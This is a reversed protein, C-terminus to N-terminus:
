PTMLNKMGNAFWLFEFQGKYNLPGLIMNSKLNEGETKVQLTELSKKKISSKKYGNDLDMIEETFQSLLLM